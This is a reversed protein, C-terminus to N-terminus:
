YGPLYLQMPAGCWAENGCGMARLLLGGDGGNVMKVMWASPSAM